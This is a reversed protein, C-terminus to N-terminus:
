FKAFLKQFPDGLSYEQSIIEFDSLRNWLLLNKFFQNFFDMKNGRCVFNQISDFETFMKLSSRGLFMGALNPGATLSSLINLSIISSAHQVVRFAGRSCTTSLHDSISTVLSKETELLIKLPRTKFLFRGLDAQAPHHPVLSGTRQMSFSWHVEHDQRNNSM